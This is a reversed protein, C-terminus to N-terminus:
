PLSRPRCGYGADVSGRGGSAIVYGLGASGGSSYGGCRRPFREGSTFNVYYYGPTDDGAGTKILGLEYVISPVYPLRTTNVEITSFSEGKSGVTLDDCQTDLTIHGNLWNWHLTGTTGPAVLTYGNDDANPLIAKWAASSDSLDADPDAANNNELIQLECDYIRYGYQQELSSGIIDSMNAPDSGLYWDLPGSGNLTRYGTQHVADPTGDNSIGGIYKIKEWYTPAIDPRLEAATTHGQLCKYIYGIYACETNATLTKGTEWATADQHAQGWATNGRPKWGNKQALLKIFGYDAVTMGTIGTGALKMRSLCQDAGLSRIPNINPLSLIAGNAVGNDGGKYKGLLAYDQPVNNIVFCPHLHNPM